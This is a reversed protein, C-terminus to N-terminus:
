SQRLCFRTGAENSRFFAVSFELHYSLFHQWKFHRVKNYFVIATAFSKKTYAENGKERYAVALRSSKDFM